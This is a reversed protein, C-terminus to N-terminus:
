LHKIAAIVIIAVCVIILAEILMPSGGERTHVTRPTGIGPTRTAACAAGSM